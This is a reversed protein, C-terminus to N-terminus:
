VYRVDPDVIMPQEEVPPHARRGRGAAADV